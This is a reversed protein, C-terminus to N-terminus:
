KRTVKKKGKPDANSGQSSLDLFKIGGDVVIKKNGEPKKTGRGQRPPKYQRFSSPPPARIQVRPQLLVHGMQMHQHPTLGPVLQPPPAYWKVTTVGSQQNSLLETIEDNQEAEMHRPPAIEFQDNSGTDNVGDDMTPAESNGGDDMNPAVSTGGDNVKKKGKTKKVTPAESNGGEDMTPAESNGGDDVRKPLIRMGSDKGGCGKSNHGKGGCKKCTITLQQRRMYIGRKKVKSQKEGDELRRKKSVRGKVRKIGFDPPLPPIFLSQGWLTDYSIGNISFKYSEKYMAVTYYDHVFDELELQEGLIACIAHTCPIGCLQWARCSCRRQNLDVTYQGGNFCRIQYSWRNSKIPVYDAVQELNRELIKSIRPCLKGKWKTEAKDRNKVLRKVLYERIWELMTIIAKDRAALINSNFSECVNNLLIDCKAKESFYAKSWQNPPKNQFWEWARENLVKMEEMRVLFEGETTSNTARWMIQKFAQGRFGTNKLNNHMHRVCYRHDAGPFVSEFAQILGKQKDFM